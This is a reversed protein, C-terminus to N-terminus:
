AAISSKANSAGLKNRKKGFLKIYRFLGKDCPQLKDTTKPPIILRELQKYNYQDDFIFLKNDQQGKFSDLLLLCKSPM